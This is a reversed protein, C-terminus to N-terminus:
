GFLDYVSIALSRVKELLEAQHWSGNRISHKQNRDPGKLKYPLEMDLSTRLYNLALDIRNLIRESESNPYERNPINWGFLTNGSQSREKLAKELFTYYAKEDNNFNCYIWTAYKITIHHVM